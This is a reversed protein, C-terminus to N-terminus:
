FKELCKKIENSSDIIHDIKGSLLNIIKGNQYIKSSRDANANDIITRYTLLKKQFKFNKLFNPYFYKIQDEHNKQVLKPNIYKKYNILFKECHNFKKFRKLRTHKVSYLTFLNKKQPYLTSFPGDMITIAPHNKIKSKYLFFLCAEYTLDLDKNPLYTQWTCNILNDFSEDNIFIKKSKENIYNVKYNLILNNKLKKVFFKKATDVDLLREKCSIMGKFNRLHFSKKEERFTLKNSKLIQKYIEFGILNEKHNAIVYLNKKISKSFKPFKKIFKKYGDRSEQITRYSRPYHFGLHLRNQNYGSAGSFIEKEKEFIKVEYGSKILDYGIYCGFWGAGIIAIKKKM